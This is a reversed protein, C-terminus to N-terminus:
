ISTIEIGSFSIDNGEFDRISGSFYENVIQLGDFILVRGSACIAMGTFLLSENVNVTGLDCSDLYNIKISGTFSGDEKLSVSSWDWTGGSNLQAAGNFEGNTSISISNMSM